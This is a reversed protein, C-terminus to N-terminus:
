QFFRFRIIFNSPPRNTFIVDFRSIHILDGLGIGAEFYTKNATTMPINPNAIRKSKESLDSWGTGGWFYWRQAQASIIPIRLRQLLRMDWQIELTGQIMRDGTYAHYTTGRLTSNYYTPITGGFDFWRQPPVRGIATGTQLHSVLRLHYSIQKKDVVDIMFRTYDFDGGGPNKWAQEVNFTAKFRWQQYNFNFNLAQLLGESVSPNLRFPLDRQVISFGTHRTVSEHNEHYIRVGVGTRKTPHWGGGIWGGRARYLDYYDSKFLFSALSNWLEGIPESTTDHLYTDYFSGGLFWRREKGFWQLAELKGKWRSDEFGYGLEWQIANRHNLLGAWRKGYSLRPGEVRNYRLLRSLGLGVKFVKGSMAEAKSRLAQRAISEMDEMNPLLNGSYFEQEFYNVIREQEESTISNPYKEPPFIKKQIVTDITIIVQRPQHSIKGTTDNIQYNSYRLTRQVRAQIGFVKIDVDEDVTEPLWYQGYYLDRNYFVKRYLEGYKPDLDLAARNYELEARIVVYHEADIWLTGFVGPTKNNRVMVKVAIANINGMKLFGIHKFYYISDKPSLLPLPTDTKESDNMVTFTNYQFRMPNPVGFVNLLTDPNVKIKEHTAIRHAIIKMQVSDPTFWHGDAYYEELFPVVQIDLPRFGFYVYVKTQVQFKIDQIDKYLKQNYHRTSDLLKQLSDTRMQCPAPISWNFLSLYGFCFFGCIFRRSM